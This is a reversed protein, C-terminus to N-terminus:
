SACVACIHVKEQSILVINVFINMLMIRFANKNEKEFCKAFKQYFMYFRNTQDSKYHVENESEITAIGYEDASREEKSEGGVDM